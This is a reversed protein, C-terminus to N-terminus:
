PSQNEESLLIGALTAKHVAHALNSCGLKHRASKLYDRVTHESLGLIVGISCTDKGKAVWFLCETERPSLGPADCNLPGRSSVMNQHLYYALYMLFPLKPDSIARWQCPEHGSSITFIARTKMNDTIPICLGSPGVGHRLADEFFDLEVPSNLELEDWYFPRPNTYGREVVPDISLYNHTLYRRIWASPYTTKLVPSDSLIWNPNAVFYTAYKGGCFDCIEQLFREIDSSGDLSLSIRLAEALPDHGIRSSVGEGGSVHGFAIM